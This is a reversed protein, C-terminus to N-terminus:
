QTPGTSKPPEAPVPTKLKDAPKPAEPEPVNKLLDAGQAKIAERQLTARAEAYAKRAEDMSNSDALLYSVRLQARGLGLLAVANEPEFELARQNHEIARRALGLREVPPTELRFSVRLWAEASTIWARMMMGRDLKPRFRTRFADPLHPYLKKPDVPPTFDSATKLLPALSEAAERDRTLFLLLEARETRVIIPSSFQWYDYTKEAAAYFEVAQEAMRYAMEPNPKSGTPLHAKHKKNSIHTAMMLAYGSMPQRQVADYSLLDSHRYVPSRAGCLILVSCAYVTAAIPLVRAGEPFRAALGRAAMAFALLLGPMPIYSYRDQMPFATALINANPGLAGFFWLFGVAVWRRDENKSAAFMAGWSAAMGLGYLWFRPDALSLIPEVGYFFSSYLPVLTNLMYRSFIDADTLLGTWASGGPPSAIDNVFLGMALKTVFLSLAIIVSYHLALMIWFRPATLKETRQPHFLELAFLVPLFSLASLKSLLSLAYLLTILPWRWRWSRDTTWAALTAFGFLACLVNKRECVWAVSELSAPHSTWVFAIFLSTNFGLGLRLFFYWLLMGALGHYLGNMLRPGWAWNNPLGTDEFMTKSSLVEQAPPGFAARDIRLSLFTVPGYLIGVTPKLIDLLSGRVSHTVYRGDDVRNFEAGLNGHLMVVVAVFMLAAVCAPKQLSTPM